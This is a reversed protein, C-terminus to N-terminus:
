LRIRSWRGARRSRPWVAMVITMRNAATSAAPCWRATVRVTRSPYRMLSRRMRVPVPRVEVPDPFRGDAGATTARQTTSASRHVAAGATAPILAGAVGVISALARIWGAGPEGAGATLGDPFPEDVVGDVVAGPAVVGVLVGGGTTDGDGVGGVVDVVVVGSGLVGGVVMAVTGGAPVEVGGGEVVVGVVEPVVTVGGHAPKDALPAEPPDHPAAMAPGAPAPDITVVPGDRVPPADLLLWTSGDLM